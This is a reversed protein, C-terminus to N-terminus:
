SWLALDVPVAEALRRDHPHFLADLRELTERDTASPSATQPAVNLWRYIRALGRRAARPTTPRLVASIGRKLQQIAPSRVRYSANRVEFAYDDYYGPDLGFRDAFRRMFAGPDARLAELQFVHVHGPPFRTLWREIWDAYRTHELARSLIPRGRLFPRDAGDLLSEVYETFDVRHDLVGVNNRAFQYLSWVRRSPRRLLFVVHPLPNLRPLWDLATREYIYDPTGECVVTEDGRGHVFHRAYADLPHSHCSVRPRLPSDPDVFFCTAKNPAACVQPHDALWGYLSTTGCKPAGALVLNPLRPTV